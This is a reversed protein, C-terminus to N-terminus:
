GHYWWVAIRVGIFALFCLGTLSWVTIALPIAIYLTGFGTLLTLFLAAIIIFEWRKLRKSTCEILVTKDM